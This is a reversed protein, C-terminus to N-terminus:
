ESYESNNIRIVILYVHALVETIELHYKDDNIFGLTRDPTLTHWVEIILSFDWAWLLLVTAAIAALPRAWGVFSPSPIYVMGSSIYKDSTVLREVHASTNVWKMTFNQRLRCLKLLHQQGTVMPGLFFGEWIGIKMGVLPFRNSFPRKHWCNKSLKLILNISYHADM